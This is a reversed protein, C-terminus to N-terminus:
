TCRRKWGKKGRWNAFPLQHYKTCYEELIREEEEKPSDCKRTNWAVLFQENNKLQWIARGGKHNNGKEIGYKIYEKIRDHLGGHKRNTMGVYLIGGARWKNLLLEPSYSSIKECKVLKPCVNSYWVVIYVGNSKPIEISIKESSNKGIFKNRLDSIKNWGGVFGEKKLSEEDFEM